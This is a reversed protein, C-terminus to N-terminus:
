LSLWGWPWLAAPLILDISFDLSKTLFRVRSCPLRVFNFGLPVSAGNWKPDLYIKKSFYATREPLTKINNVLSSGINPTPCNTRLYVIFKYLRQTHFTTQLHIFIIIVFIFNFLSLLLMLDTPNYNQTIRSFNIIIWLTPFNGIKQLDRFKMVTSVVAGWHDRQQTKQIWALGECETGQLEM